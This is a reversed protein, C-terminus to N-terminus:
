FFSLFSSVFLLQKSLKQRRENSSFLFTVKKKHCFVLVGPSHGPSSPPPTVPPRFPPPCLTLPAHRNNLSHCCNRQVERTNNRKQCKKTKAALKFLRVSGSPTCDWGTPTAHDVWGSHTHTPTLTNCFSTAIKATQPFTSFKARNRSM